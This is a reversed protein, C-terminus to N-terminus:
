RKVSPVVVERTKEGNATPIMGIGTARVTNKENYSFNGFDMYRVKEAMGGFHMGSHYATAALFLENGGLSITKEPNIGVFIYLNILQGKEFVNKVFGSVDKVGDDRRSLSQIFASIDAIFIFIPKEKRM